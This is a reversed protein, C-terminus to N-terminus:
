RPPPRLKRKLQKLIRGKESESLNPDSRVMRLKSDIFAREAEKDRGSLRTLREFEARRDGIAAGHPPPPPLKRGM